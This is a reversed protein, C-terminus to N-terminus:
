RIDWIRTRGDGSKGVVVFKDGHLRLASDVAARTLELTSTMEVVTSPGNSQLHDRLQKWVAVFVPEYPMDTLHWRDDSACTVGKSKHLADRVTSIPISLARHLESLTHPGHGDIFELISDIAMTSRKRSMDRPNEKVRPLRSPPVPARRGMDAAVVIQRVYRRGNWVTRVVRRTNAYPANEYEELAMQELPTVLPIDGDARVMNVTERIRPTTM